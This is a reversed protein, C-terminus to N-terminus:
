EPRERDRLRRALLLRVSRSVAGTMLRDWAEVDIDWFPKGGVGNALAANNVLGHVPGLEGVAAALAGVSAADSM